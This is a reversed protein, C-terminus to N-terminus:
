VSKAITNNRKRRFFADGLFLLLMIDVYFFIKIAGSNKPVSFDPLRVDVLSNAISLRGESFILAIVMIIALVFFGAIAGIVYNNTATKLPKAAEHARIGEMVKYSFAMSPEELTLETIEGNMQLLSTMAGNAFALHEYNSSKAMQEAYMISRDTSANFYLRIKDKLIEYDDEIVTNKQQSFAASFVFFSLLCITLRRLNTKSFTLIIRLM